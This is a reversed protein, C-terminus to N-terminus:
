WKIIEDLLKRRQIIRAITQDQQLLDEWTPLSEPTSTEKGNHEEPPESFEQHVESEVTPETTDPKGNHTKPAEVAETVIDAVSPM